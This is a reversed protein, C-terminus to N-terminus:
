KIRVEQGPDFYFNSRDMGNLKLFEDVSLGYRGAIQQPGEGAQVTGYQANADDQSSSSPTTQQAAAASQSAAAEAAAQSEAAAQAQAQSESAAQAAEQAAQQDATDTSATSEETSSEKTSSKETSSVKSVQTTSEPSAAPKDNGRTIWFFAGAPILILALLLAVLITLFKTNGGGKNGGGGSRRSQSRSYTEEEGDSEYIHQDWPENNTDNYRDKRSLKELRRFAIAM